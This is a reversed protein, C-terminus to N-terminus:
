PHTPQKIDHQGTAEQRIFTRCHNDEGNVPTTQRGRCLIQLHQADEQHQIQRLLQFNNTACRVNCCTKVNFTIITTYEESM